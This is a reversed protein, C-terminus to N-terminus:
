TNKTKTLSQYALSAPDPPFFSPAHFNHLFLLSDSSGTVPRLELVLADGTLVTLVRWLTTSSKGEGEKCVKWKLREDSPTLPVAITGHRQKEELLYPPWHTVKALYIKSVSERERWAQSLFSAAQESKAFVM